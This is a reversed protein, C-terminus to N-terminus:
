VNRADIQQQIVRLAVKHQEALHDKHWRVLRKVKWHDAPALEKLNLLATAIVRAMDEKTLRM